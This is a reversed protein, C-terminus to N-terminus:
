SERNGAHLADGGIGGEGDGDLYAVEGPERVRPGELGVDPKERALVGGSVFNACAADGLRAVRKHSLQEYLRGPEIRPRPHEVRGDIDLANRGFHHLVRSLAANAELFTRIM